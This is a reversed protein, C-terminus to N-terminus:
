TYELVDNENSVPQYKDWSRQHPRKRQPETGLANAAQSIKEGSLLLLGFDRSSLASLMELASARRPM